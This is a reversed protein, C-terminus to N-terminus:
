EKTHHFRWGTPISCIGSRWVMQIPVVKSVLDSGLLRFCFMIHFGHSVLTRTLSISNLPTGFFYAGYCIPHSCHTSDSGAVDLERVSLLEFIRSFFTKGPEVKLGLHGVLVELEKRFCHKRDLWSSILCQLDALKSSQLCIEMVKSDLELGLFTLWTIPGELKDLTILLGLEQFTQLLILLAQACEASSSVPIWLHM